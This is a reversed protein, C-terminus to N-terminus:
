QTIYYLEKGQKKEWGGQIPTSYPASPTNRGENSKKYRLKSNQGENRMLPRHASYLHLDYIRQNTGATAVISLLDHFLDITPIFNHQLAFSFPQRMHYRTSSLQYTTHQDCTTHQVPYCTRPINTVHPINYQFVVTSSNTRPQFSIIRYQFVLHNVCTVHQVPYITHQDCTTHQVPFSSYQFKDATPIFNNQVPFSFPQRMHCTASPLHYAPRM